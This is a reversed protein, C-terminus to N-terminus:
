CSKKAAGKGISSDEIVQLFLDKTSQNNSEEKISKVLELNGIELQHQHLVNLDVEQDEKQGDFGNVLVQKGSEYIVDMEHLCGDMKMVDDVCSSTGFCTLLALNTGEVVQKGKEDYKLRTPNKRQRSSRRPGQSPSADGGGDNDM